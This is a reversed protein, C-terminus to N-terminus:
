LPCTAYEPFLRKGLELADQRSWARLHINAYGNGFGSDGFVLEPRERPQGSTPRFIVSLLLQRCRAEGWLAWSQNASDMEGARWANTNWGHQELMLKSKQFNVAGLPPQFRELLKLEEFAAEQHTVEIWCLANAPQRLCSVIGRQTGSKLFVSQVVHRAKDDTEDAMFLLSAKRGRAIAEIRMVDASIGQERLRVDKTTEVAWGLEFLRDTVVATKLQLIDFMFHGDSRLISHAM